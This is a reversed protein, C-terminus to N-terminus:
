GVSRWVDIVGLTGMLLSVIGNITFFAMDIHRRESRWVLAHELILLAAMAAVGVAFAEHLLPSTRSLAALCLVSILHLARSIWLAPEVGLKSPMSHLGDRRDVDVDQLAYIVDFGAVWCLVATFLLWPWLSFMQAPELAVTAALPSLALAIGLMMHCLWTFRKAFSYAAVFALVGPACLMPWLNGRLLWFGSCTVIFLFSCAIAVSLFLSASVRGSPIARRATRPNGADINRDAWRNVTMAVTRALVMCVVILGLEAVSPRRTAQGCALFSALIAFPLAFVSHSLKIDGAISLLAGASVSAPTQPAPPIPDTTNVHTHIRSVPASRADNSSTM